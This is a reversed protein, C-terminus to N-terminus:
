GRGVGVGDRLGDGRLRQEFVTADLAAAEAFGFAKTYEPLKSAARDFGDNRRAKQMVILESLITSDVYTVNTFDLM